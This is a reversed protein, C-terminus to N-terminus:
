EPLLEQPSAVVILEPLSFAEDLQSTEHIVWPPGIWVFLRFGEDIGEETM